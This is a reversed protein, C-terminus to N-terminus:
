ILDFNIKIVHDHSTHVSAVPKKVHELDNETHANNIDNTTYFSVDIFNFSNYCYMFAAEDTGNAHQRSAEMSIKFVKERV